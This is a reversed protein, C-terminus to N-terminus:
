KLGVKYVWQIGGWDEGMREGDRGKGGEGRGM